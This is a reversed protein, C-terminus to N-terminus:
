LYFIYELQMWMSVPNGDKTAPVFKIGRAADIARETMGYPLGVLVQINTVEGTKSFIVRLITDNAKAPSTHCQKDDVAHKALRSFVGRGEGYVDAM